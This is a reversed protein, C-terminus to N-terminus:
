RLQKRAAWTYTVASVFALGAAVYLLPMGGEQIARLWIPQDSCNAKLSNTTFDKTISCTFNLEHPPNFALRGLLCSVALMQTMTKWKGLKSVPLPVNRLALFERLGSIYLERLLMVMVPLLLSAGLTLVLYVLMLAIILKDSIQDLMTGLPTVANWKRALYGDLFDTLCAAVFIGCLLRYRQTTDIEVLMLALCAPVALVRAFTLLNPIRQKFAM